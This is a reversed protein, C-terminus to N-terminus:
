ILFYVLQFVRLDELCEFTLLLV